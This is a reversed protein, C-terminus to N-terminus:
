AIANSTCPDLIIFTCFAGAMYLKPRLNYKQKVLILTRHLQVTGAYRAITRYIHGYISHPSISFLTQTKGVFQTCMFGMVCCVCLIYIYSLMHKPTDSSHTHESSPEGAKISNRYKHFLPHYVEICDAALDAQSLGVM